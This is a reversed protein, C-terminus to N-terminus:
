TSECRGSRAMLVQGDAHVEGYCGAGCQGCYPTTNGGDRIYTNPGYFDRAVYRNDASYIAWVDAQGEGFGDAGNGSGYRDNYWHGLEHGIVTSYATNPCGGAAIFFNISGGNYFANCQSNENVIALAQFDPKNDTPNV